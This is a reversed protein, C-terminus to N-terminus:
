HTGDRLTNIISKLAKIVHKTKKKRAKKKLNGLDLDDMCRARKNIGTISTRTTVRETQGHTHTHINTDSRCGLRTSPNPHFKAPM